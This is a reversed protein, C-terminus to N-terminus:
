NDEEGRMQNWKSAAEDRMEDITEQLMKNDYHPPWDCDVVRVAAHKPIDGNATAAALDTLEGGLEFLPRQEIRDGILAAAVSHVPRWDLNTEIGDADTPEVWSFLVLMRRSPTFITVPSTM